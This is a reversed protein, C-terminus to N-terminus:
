WRTARSDHRERTASRHDWGTTGGGDAGAGPQVGGFGGRCFPFAGWFALPSTVMEDKDEGV